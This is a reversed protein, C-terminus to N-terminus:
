CRGSIVKREDKTEMIQPGILALLYLSIRSDAAEFLPFGLMTEFGTVIADM